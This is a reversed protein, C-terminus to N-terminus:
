LVRASVIEVYLGGQCILPRLHCVCPLSNPPLASFSPPTPTHMCSDLRFRYGCSGAHLLLKLRSMVVKMAEATVRRQVVQLPVVAADHRKHM